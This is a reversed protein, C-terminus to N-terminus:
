EYMSGSPPGSVVPDLARLLNSRRSIKLCNKEVNWKFISLSFCCSAGSDM